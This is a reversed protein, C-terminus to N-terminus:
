PPPQPYPMAPQWMAQPVQPQQQAAEPSTAAADSTM